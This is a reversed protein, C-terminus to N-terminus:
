QGEIVGDAVLNGDIDVFVVEGNTAQYAAIDVNGSVTGFVITATARGPNSADAAFTGTINQTTQGSFFLDNVSGTGTITSTGDSFVQGVADAVDPAQFDLAYNGFFSASNSQPTLFGTAFADGDLDVILAGGLGSGTNNPDALNLNPDTAYVGISAIDPTNTFTLAASGYGDGSVDFSYTGTIGGNTPTGNGENADGFGASFNGAGDATLQGATSLFGFSGSGSETFVNAGTVSAVTITGASSGQGYFSGAETVAADVDIIRLCEGNVIYYVFSLGGINFTGRGNADPALYTSGPAGDLFLNGAVNEDLTMTFTGNGDATAVGGAVYLGEGPNTDVGNYEFAYGGTIQTLDGATFTQFDLSGSSTATDDFQIVRAHNFNVFTVALTQVGAVGVTADSLDLTITGQGDQGVTYTGGTVTIATSTLGAANNYDEEGAAVNGAGDLTISGAASYLNDSADSGSVVFAYSGSVLSTDAIPVIVVPATAFVTSDTVSTATVLVTMGGTAVDGEPITTPATYVINAGSASTASSLSGCDAGMDCALTWNAGANAADNTITAALPVPIKIEMAGPPPTTMALIIQQKPKGGGGCAAVFSTLGVALLVFLISKRNM